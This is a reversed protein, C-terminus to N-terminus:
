PDVWRGLRKKGARLASGIRPDNEKGGGGEGEGGGGEGGIDLVSEKWLAPALWAVGEIAAEVECGLFKM